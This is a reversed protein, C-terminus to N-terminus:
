VVFPFCFDSTLLCSDSSLLNRPVPIGAQAPVLKPSQGRVLNLSCFQHPIERYWETCPKRENQAQSVRSGTLFPVGAVNSARVSPAATAPPSKSRVTHPNRVPQLFDSGVGGYRSRLGSIRLSEVHFSLSWALPSCSDL